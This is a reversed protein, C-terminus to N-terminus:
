FISIYMAFYWCVKYKFSKGLDYEALTKWLHNGEEDKRIM